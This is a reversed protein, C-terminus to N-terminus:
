SEKPVQIFQGAWDSQPLYSAPIGMLDVSLGLNPPIFTWSYLYKSTFMWPICEPLQVHTLLAPINLLSCSIEIVNKQTNAQGWFPIYIYLYIYM